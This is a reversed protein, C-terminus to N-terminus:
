AEVKVSELHAELQELTCNGWIYDATMTDGTVEQMTQCLGNVREIYLEAMARYAELMNKTREDM